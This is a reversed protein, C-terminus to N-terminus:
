GRFPMSRAPIWEMRGFLVRLFSSCPYCGTPSSHFDFLPVPFCNASWDSLLCPSFGSRLYSHHLSPACGWNLVVVASKDPHVLFQSLPAPSIRSGPFGALHLSHSHPVHSLGSNDSHQSVGPGCSPKLAQVALRSLYSVALPVPLSLVTKRHWRLTFHPYQSRLLWSSPFDAPINM